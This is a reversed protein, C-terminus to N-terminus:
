CAEKISVPAALGEQRKGSGTVARTVRMREPRKVMNCLQTCRDTRLAQSESGEEVPQVFGDDRATMKLDCEGGGM